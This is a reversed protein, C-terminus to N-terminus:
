RNALRNYVSAFVCGGIVGDVFALAIGVVWDTLAGSADYGPFLAAFLGLVAVGYDPFLMNLAGVLAVTGGFFVGCTLAFGRTSLRLM